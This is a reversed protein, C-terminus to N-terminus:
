ASAGEHARQGHRAPRTHQHYRDAPESAPTRKTHTRPFLRACLYIAVTIILALAILYPM